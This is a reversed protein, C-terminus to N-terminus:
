KSAKRKWPWIVSEWENLDASIDSDDYAKIAWELLITDWEGEMVEQGSVRRKTKKLASIEVQFYINKLNVQKNDTEEM